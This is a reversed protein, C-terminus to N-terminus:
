FPIPDDEGPKEGVKEDPEDKGGGGGGLALLRSGPGSVHIRTSKNKEGDKTWEETRISGCVYILRGKGLYDSAFRAPQGFAVVRHWETREQKQGGKDTWRESTAVSFSAVPDGSQTYRIDLTAGIYGILEVRNLM